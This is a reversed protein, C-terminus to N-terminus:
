LPRSAGSEPRNSGNTCRAKSASTALGQTQDEAEARLARQPATGALLQLPRYLGAGKVIFGFFTLPRACLGCRPDPASSFDRLWRARDVRM